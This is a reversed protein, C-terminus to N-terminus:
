GISKLFATAEDKNQQIWEHSIIEVVGTHLEIVQGRKLEITYDQVVGFRAIRKVKGCLITHENKNWITVEMDDYEFSM